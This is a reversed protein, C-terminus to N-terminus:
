KLQAQVYGIIGYVWCVSRSGCYGAGAQVVRSCKLPVGLLSFGMSAKVRLTPSGVVSTFVWPLCLSNFGANTSGGVIRCRGSSCAQELKQWTSPTWNVITLWLFPTRPDTNKWLAMSSCVHGTLASSLHTWLVRDTLPSWSVDSCLVDDVRVAM